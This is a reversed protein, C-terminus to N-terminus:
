IAGAHDNIGFLHALSIPQEAAVAAPTLGALDRLDHTLHSQDFYGLEAALRALDGGRRLLTAARQMRAIRALQKPTIGVERRFGRALHQRTVGLGTAVDDVRADGTSLLAVARAILPDPRAADALRARLWAVLAALRAHAATAFPLKAPLRAAPASPADIIRGALDGPVLDLDADALAVSRDTLDALAFGTLAAATGPKFRVAVIEGAQETMEIARTMTGVLEATGRGPDVIVDVCGDPLVRHLRGAHEARCTRLWLRDVYVALDAPPAIETYPSEGPARPMDLPECPIGADVLSSLGCLLDVFM